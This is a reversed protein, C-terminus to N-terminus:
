ASGSDRARADTRDRAREPNPPSPYPCDRLGLASSYKNGVKQVPVARLEQAVVVDDLKDADVTWQVAHEAERIQYHRALDGDALDCNM